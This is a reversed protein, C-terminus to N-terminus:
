FRFINYTKKKKKIYKYECILHNEQYVESMISPTSNEMAYIKKNQETVINNEYSFNNFMMNYIKVPNKNSKPRAKKNADMGFFSFCDWIFNYNKIIIYKYIETILIKLSCEKLVEM